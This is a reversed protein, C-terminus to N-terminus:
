PLAYGYRQIIAQARTGKLYDFLAHAAENGEGKKLLVVDQLIPDHYHSPVKWASGGTMQGDQFVQSLAVFGLDANGTSVFQLTQSVNEGQVFRGQVAELVGLQALTQIAAAGYPATKPNTISLKNFKGTKLIEGQTDVFDPKASWLVLTGIAYTFRRDKIAHGEGELKAPIAADASLFVEFPAGNVIQAYFKGSAGFSLIAKHGKDEEFASAIAQMPATFNASVAVHVEGAHAQGWVLLAASLTSVTFVAKM